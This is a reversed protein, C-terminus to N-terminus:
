VYVYTCLPGAHLCLQRTVSMHPPPCMQTMLLLIRVAGRASVATTHGNGCATMIITVTHLPGQQPPPYMYLWLCQIYINYIYVCVCARVCVCVCVCMVYIYLDCHTVAGTSFSSVHVVVPM